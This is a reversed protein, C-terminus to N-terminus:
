EGDLGELFEVAVLLVADLDDDGIEAGEGAFEARGGGREGAGEREALARTEEERGGPFDERPKGGRAGVALGALGEGLEVRLIERVVRRAAPAGGAAAVTAHEGPHQLGVLVVFVIGGGAQAGEADLGAVLEGLGARGAGVAAARAEVADDAGDFEVEGAFLWRERQGRQKGGRGGLQERVQAAEIEVFAAAADRLVDHRLDLLAQLEEVVDAEAVERQLAGGVREAAALGLADAQGRLEAGVEGAHEVHEVLGADAQMCAVVAAEDAREKGQAVLAVREEDDFVVVLEHLVGVVDDVEPGGGAAM